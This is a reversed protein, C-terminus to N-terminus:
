SLVNKTAWDRFTKSSVEQDLMNKFSGRLIPIQLFQLLVVRTPATADGHITDAQVIHSDASRIFSGWWMLLRTIEVPSLEAGQAAKVFAQALADCEALALLNRQMESAVAATTQARTGRTNQRIQLALYALTALTAIAAVFEGISGLDQLTV